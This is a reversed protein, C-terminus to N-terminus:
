LYFQKSNNKIQQQQQNEKTIQQKQREAFLIAFYHFKSSQCCIWILYKVQSDNYQQM